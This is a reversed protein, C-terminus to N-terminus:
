SESSSYNSIAEDYEDKTKIQEIKHIQKSEEIIELRELLQSIEEIHNSIKLSEM